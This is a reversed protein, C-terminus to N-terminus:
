PKGRKLTAGATMQLQDNKPQKTYERRWIGGRAKGSQIHRMPWATKKVNNGLLIGVDVNTIPPQEM